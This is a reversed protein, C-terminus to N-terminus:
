LQYKSKFSQHTGDVNRSYSCNTKYSFHGTEENKYVTSLIKGDQDDIIVYGKNNELNFISM